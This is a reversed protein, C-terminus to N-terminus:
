LPECIRAAAKVEKHDWQPSSFSKLTLGQDKVEPKNHLFHTVSVRDSSSRENQNSSDLLMVIHRVGPFTSASQWSVWVGSHDMGCRAEMPFPDSTLDQLVELASLHLFSESPRQEALLCSTSMGLVHPLKSPFPLRRPWLRCVRVKGEAAEWM